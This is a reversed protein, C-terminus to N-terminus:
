NAEIERWLRRLRFLVFAMAVAYILLLVGAVRDQFTGMDYTVGPNITKDLGAVFAFIGLATVIVALGVIIVRRTRVSLERRAAM